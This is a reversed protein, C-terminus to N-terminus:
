TAIEWPPTVPGWWRGVYNKNELMEGTVDNYTMGYAMNTTAFYSINAIHYVGRESTIVGNFWYRGTQTPPASEGNRHTYTM